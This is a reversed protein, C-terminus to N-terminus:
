PAASNTTKAKKAPPHIGEKSLYNNIKGKYRQFVATKEEASGGDMAEERAEKLLELIKQRHAESLDPYETLYGNFTFQVKGYTMKDKVQDVQEPTLQEGLRAIFNNHLTKLSARLKEVANTDKRAAKLMADNVNHWTNLARYQAIIIDHVRAIKNTDSLALIKLIEATRGEIAQTYKAEAQQPALNTEAAFTAASLFAFVAILM